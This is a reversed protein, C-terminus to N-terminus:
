KSAAKVIKDGAQKYRNMKDSVKKEAREKKKAMFDKHRKIM